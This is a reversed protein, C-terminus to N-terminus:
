YKRQEEKLVQDLASFKEQWKANIKKAWVELNHLSATNITYIRQQAKKQVHVVEADRLVKLHQSIAPPTIDFKDSIQSASLQGSAALMEIISRRTPEALASFVDPRNTIQM